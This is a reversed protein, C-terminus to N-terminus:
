CRGRMDGGRSATCLPSTPCPFVRSHALVSLNPGWFHPNPGQFLPKAPSSEPSLCLSGGGLEPCPQALGSCAPPPWRQVAARSAVRRSPLAGGPAKGHGPPTQPPSLSGLADRRRRGEPHRHELPAAPARSCPCGPDAHATSGHAAPFPCCRSTGRAVRSGRPAAM